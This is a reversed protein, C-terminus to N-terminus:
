TTEQHNYNEVSWFIAVTYVGILSHSPDGNIALINNTVFGLWFIITQVIFFLKNNILIIINIWNLKVYVSM